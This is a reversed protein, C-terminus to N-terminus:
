RGKYVHITDATKYATDVSRRIEQRPSQKVNQKKVVNPVVFLGFAIVVLAGLVTFCGPVCGADEKTNLHEVSPVM